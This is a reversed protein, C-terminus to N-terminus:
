ESPELGLEDSCSAAPGPPVGRAGRGSARARYLALMLQCACGSGCRISPSSRRSSAVLEAHRGLALDADIRLELAASDCSRSGRSRPRRSSSTRSTPWRRGAGSRSRRACSRAGRDDADRAGRRPWSSSSAPSTSSPPMSACCTAPRGRLSGTTARAGQAAALRLGPHEQRLHGAAVDGWLEDILRDTSVVENAHLLLMALLSRQKIGGLTLSGEDGAVELPGLLRFDM